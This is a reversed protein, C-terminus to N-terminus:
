LNWTGWTWIYEYSSCLTGSVHNWSKSAKM